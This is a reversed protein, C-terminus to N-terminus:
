NMERQDGKMDSQKNVHEEIKQNLKSIHNERNEAEENLDDITGQLSNCKSQLQSREDKLSFM